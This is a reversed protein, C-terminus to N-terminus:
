PAAPKAAPQKPRPRPLPVAAVRANSITASAVPTFQTTSPYGPPTADFAPANVTAASTAPAVDTAAAGAAAIKAGKAPKPAGAAASQANPAVKPPGAFVVVPEMAPPLDQLLESAKISTGRLSSLMVANPSNPDANGAVQDGADDEEDESPPRKRKKGCIDDRMNPPPASVPQIDAVNGLSPTLWSISGGQFGRELLVAAKTARQASSYAGLVVAILRKNNRTASAVLNFGSACIFGTKMGDAGPYRDILKNFNRTVRKGFKIASIHWFYDYEPLERIMARALIALDRASTIQGDAPLGNPNVYSTSTMGLRAAAKNMDDAFKEISGSVGEALVVAIDNASKVMLMKLANDVTVQIGAKFGMKSPQQAVANPSVTLLTDLTIRREKVAKLTVYATMLKTVSAPYWPQGANEAQLVKGTEAEILITAEARADSAGCVVTAALAACVVSASFLKGVLHVSGTRHTNRAQPIEM